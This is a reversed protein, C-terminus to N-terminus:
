LAEGDAMDVQQNVVGDASRFQETDAFLDDGPEFPFGGCHFAPSYGTSMKRIPRRKLVMDVMGLGAGAQHGQGSIQPNRGDVFL